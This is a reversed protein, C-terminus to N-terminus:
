ISCETGVFQNRKRKELVVFPGAGLGGWTGNDDPTRHTTICM